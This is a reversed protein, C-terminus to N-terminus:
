RTSARRPSIRSRASRATPGLRRTRAIYNAGDTSRWSYHLNGVGDVAVGLDAGLPSITRAPGLSGDAARTRTQVGAGAKAWVYHAAGSVDMAVSPMYNTGEAAVDFAPLEFAARASGAPIVLGLAVALIPLLTPIHTRATV